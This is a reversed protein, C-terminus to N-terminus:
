GIRRTRISWEVGIQAMVALRPEQNGSVAPSRPSCTEPSHMPGPGRAAASKVSSAFEASARWTPPTACRTFLPSHRYLETLSQSRVNGASVTLFGSPFRMESISSSCLIRAMTSEVRRVGPETQRPCSSRPHHAIDNGKRKEEARRQPLILRGVGPLPRAKMKNGADEPRALRVGVHRIKTENVDGNSQVLIM